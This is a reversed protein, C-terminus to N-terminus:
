GREEEYENEQGPKYDPDLGLSIMLERHKEEQLREIEAKLEKIEDRRAKKERMLFEEEKILDEITKRHSTIESELGNKERMLKKVQRVLKRYLKLDDKDIEDSGRERHEGRVLGFEKMRESYEDQIKSLHRKGGLLFNKSIKGTEPNQPIVIGQIHPTTEDMHLVATFPCGKFIEQLYELNKQKWREFQEPDDEINAAPSYTLVFSIAKVKPEEHKRNKKDPKTYYDHQMANWLLKSYRGDGILIENEPTKEAIVNSYEKERLAECQLARISSATKHTDFTIIAYNPM